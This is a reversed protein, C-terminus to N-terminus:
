EGGTLIHRLMRHWRAYAVPTAIPDPEQEAIPRALMEASLREYLVWFAGACDPHLAVFAQAIDYAEPVDGRGAVFAAYATELDHM